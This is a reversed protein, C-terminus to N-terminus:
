LTRWVLGQELALLHLPFYFSHEDRSAAIPFLPRQKGRKVQHCLSSFYLADAKDPLFRKGRYGAGAVVVDAM